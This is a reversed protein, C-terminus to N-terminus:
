SCTLWTPMVAFRGKETQTYKLDPFDGDPHREVQLISGRLILWHSPLHTTSIHHLSPGPNSQICIPFRRTKSPTRHLPNGGM